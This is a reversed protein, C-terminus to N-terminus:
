DNMAYTGATARAEAWVRETRRADYAPRRVIAAAAKQQAPTAQPKNQLTVAHVSADGVLVEFISDILDRDTGAIAAQQLILDGYPVAIFLDGVTLLLDLDRMQTKSLPATGLLAQLADVQELFVRVNPLDAYAAYTARWDHFAVRGLGQAPGQQFLFTDDVANRCRPPLEPTTARPPLPVVGTAARIAARSAKFAPAFVRDPIRSPRGPKRTALLALSPDTPSFLYSPLFKLALAMNIHVTGELRPLGMMALAAMPFYMDNEFAKASIVDWLLEIGKVGQRTVGMKEIADFLLYRRDEATGTRMYDVARETYLDMAAMRVWTETLMSRVQSFDTVKSGFLMRGEAHTISEHWAHQLAGVAGPGLNFKGVNVTNIAADFAESGLHLVDEERVPYDELDFAAVYMQADVVNKRLKYAPHQSDAVFFVYGSQDKANAGKGEVRGFVSVMGALNGNGIYYKGGNARYGGEGDATLVMDTTYVDAGHERESLGFAFIAGSDLLDAAKRKAVLNGSQWIPGLGLITVQWVYWYAMGYFGLIQSYTAVRSEDWRKDADGDALEAPTLLTAFVRERKVFDLFDAYWIHDRDQQKLVRKGRSEFFEITAEFIRRTEADFEAFDPQHPNFLAM